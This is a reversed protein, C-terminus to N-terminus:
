VGMHVFCVHVCKWMVLVHKRCTHTDADQSAAKGLAAWPRQCGWLGDGARAGRRGHEGLPPLPDLDGLEWFVM